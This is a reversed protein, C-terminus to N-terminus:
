RGIPKKKLLDVEFIMVKIPDDLGLDVNPRKIKPNM